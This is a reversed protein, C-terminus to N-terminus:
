WTNLKDIGDRAIIPKLSSLDNFDSSWTLRTAAISAIAYTELLM